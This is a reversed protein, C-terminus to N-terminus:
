RRKPSYRIDHRTGNNNMKLAKSLIIRLEKAVHRIAMLPHSFIMRPGSYRMVECIKKRMDPRYCHIECLRCTPKNAKFPCHSIQKKAYELLEKCQPCLESSGEKNRCYLRIMAEVTRLEENATTHWTNEDIGKNVTDKPKNSM